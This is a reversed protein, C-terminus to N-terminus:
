KIEIIIDFFQFSFIFKIYFHFIDAFRREFFLELSLQSKIRILLLKQFCNKSTFSEQNESAKQTYTEWDKQYIEWSVCISVFM